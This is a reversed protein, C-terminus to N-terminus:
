TLDSHILTESAVIKRVYFEKVYDFNIRFFESEGDRMVEVELVGESPDEFTEPYERDSFQAYQHAADEANHADVDWWYEDDLGVCRVKFAIKTM